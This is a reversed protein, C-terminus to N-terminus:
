LIVCGAEDGLLMADVLRGVFLQSTQNLSAKRQLLFKKSKRDCFFSKDHKWLEANCSSAIEFEFENGVRRQGGHIFDILTFKCRARGVERRIFFLFAGPSSSSVNSYHHCKTFKHLSFVCLCLANNFYAEEQKGWRSISQASHKTRRNRM